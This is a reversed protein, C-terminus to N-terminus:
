EYVDQVPVEQGLRFRFRFGHLIKYMDLKRIASKNRISNRRDHIIRAVADCCLPQSKNRFRREIVRSRENEKQESTGNEELNKISKEIAIGM